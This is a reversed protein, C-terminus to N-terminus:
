WKGRKEFTGDLNTAIWKRGSVYKFSKFIHEVKCKGLEDGILGFQNLKNFDEENIVIADINEYIVNVTSRIRNM